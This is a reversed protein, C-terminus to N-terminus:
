DNFREDNKLESIIFSFFIKNQEDVRYNIIYERAKKLSRESFEIDTENPLSNSYWNDYNFQINNNILEYVDGGLISVHLEEFRNLINLADDKSFAWNKVGITQLCYGEKLLKNIQVIKNM